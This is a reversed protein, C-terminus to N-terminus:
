VAVPAAIFPHPDYGVLAFDDVRYDDIGGPVRNIEFKPFPRPERQLQTEVLHEHNLYLHTDGGMWTLEGPELGVEHAFLRLIYSYGCLNFGLGLGVDVSRQYGVVNLRGEAVIFQYVMHCCPLAASGIDEPNWAHFLNRRSYPDRKLLDISNAVQDISGGDRKRWKRWQPGYSGLGISGWAACFADDGLIRAEFEDRTLTEGTAKAHAAMPWDTWIHVGQAVLPRISDAGTLFWLMEILASRWMVKKTTLVPITGDSLDFKMMAGSLARTGVGTRDIRQSGNEWVNRMLDLYQHEPHRQEM